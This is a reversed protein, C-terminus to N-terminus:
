MATLSSVASLLVSIRKEVTYAIEPISNILSSSDRKSVKKKSKYIRQDRSNEAEGPIRHCWIVIGIRTYTFVLVTVPVGYQLVMLMTTYKSDFEPESFVESCIYRSFNNTLLLYGRESFQICKNCIEICDNCRSFFSPFM